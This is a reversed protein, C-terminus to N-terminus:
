EGFIRQSKLNQIENKRREVASLFQTCEDAASKILAPNPGGFGPTTNANFNVQLKQVFTKLDNYTKTLLDELQKYRVYPQSEGPGPGTGVGGDDTKRGIFIKSGSIQITGDAEIVISALDSNPEGEKVIRITGNVSPNENGIDDPELSSRNPLQSKRAVIRIHDSKVAVSAGIKDTIPNQFAKATGTPGTGLTKDIESKSSVYIRSADMLFDPDGEPSNTKFNGKSKSTAEDQLVGVNKDTEFVGAIKTEEIYPRTTKNQAEGRQKGAASKETAPARFYKGRGAVIDIVGLGVGLNPGPSVTSAQSNATTTTPRGSADATWGMETGLRIATNNSGQIVLDGPRKTLRPVPEMPSIKYEKSGTIITPFAEQGGAVTAFDPQFINGNQYTLQRPSIFNGSGDDKGDGLFTKNIRREGHTFNVDEVHLPEAIRSIWFFSTPSEEFVWVQEGAKVPMMLHSSFFPFCVSDASTTMGGRDTLLRCIISNRPARFYLEKGVLNDIINKDAVADRTSPDSLTHIVVARHFKNGQATTKEIAERDNQGFILADIASASM